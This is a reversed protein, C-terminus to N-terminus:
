ADTTSGLYVERVRPDETIETPTGECLITGAVLVSITQAFRFVMEINHEILLVAVDSPLKEIMDLIAATESAPVGAAPEDLLLIKPRGALAIAIELSRQHGYSLERAPVDAFELLNFRELLEAAEDIEATRSSLRQFISRAAGTRQCVAATLTELPTLELFIQNIQFTRGLGKIVRKHPALRTVDEGGISVTGTDPRLRGTLLNILTTKGAGNPGIIAHRAGAQLVLDVNRIVALAGFSKAIGTAQLAATM